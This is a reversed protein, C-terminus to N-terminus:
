KRSGSRRSKRFVVRCGSHRFKERSTIGRASWREMARSFQFCFPHNSIRFKLNESSHIEWDEGSQEDGSAGKRGCRFERQRVQRGGILSREPGPVPSGEREAVPIKGSSDDADAPCLERGADASVSREAADIHQVAQCFCKFRLDAYFCVIM